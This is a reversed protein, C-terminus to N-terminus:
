NEEREFLESANFLTWKLLLSRKIEYTQCLSTIIIEYATYLQVYFM